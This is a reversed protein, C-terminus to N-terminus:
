RALRATAFGAAGALLCTLVTAAVYGAARALAGHEAMQLTELNFSSYTTFGGLVGTGLLLRLEVGFLAHGTGLQSLMGLAFSGVVNVAFTGLPLSPGLAHGCALNTWYRLLTGFAGGLAVLLSTVCRVNSWRYAARFRRGM